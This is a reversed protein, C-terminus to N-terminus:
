TLAPEQTSLALFDREVAVATVLDDNASRLKAVEGELEQVRDRLRRVEAAMRLDSGIGVHGFLAKAM